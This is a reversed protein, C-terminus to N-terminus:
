TARAAVITPRIGHKDLHDKIASFISMVDSFGAAKFTTVLEGLDPSPKLGISFSTRHALKSCIRNMSLFDERLEPSAMQWYKKIRLDEVGLDELLNQYEVAAAESEKTQAGAEAKKRTHEELASREPGAPGDAEGSEGRHANTTRGAPRGCTRDRFVLIQVFFVHRFLEVCLCANWEGRDTGPWDM